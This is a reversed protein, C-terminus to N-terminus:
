VLYDGDYHNSVDWGILANMRLQREIIQAIVKM